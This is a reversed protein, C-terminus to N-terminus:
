KLLQCQEAVRNRKGTETVQRRWIEGFQEVTGPGYGRMDSYRVWVRAILHNLTELAVIMELCRDGVPNNV